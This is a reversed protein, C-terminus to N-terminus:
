RCPARRTMLYGAALALLLVVAGEGIGVRSLEAVYSM